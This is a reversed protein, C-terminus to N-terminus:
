RRPEYRMAMAGSGFELRSVLRVDVHKWLGAFLTPGQGALRRQVMREIKFNGLFGRLNIRQRGFCDQRSGMLARRRLQIVTPPPRVQHACKSNVRMFM